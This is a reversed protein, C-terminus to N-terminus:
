YTIIFTFVKFSRFVGKRSQFVLFIEKTEVKRKLTDCWLNMDKGSTCAKPSNFYTEPVSPQLPHKSVAQKSGNKKQFPTKEPKLSKGYLDSPKAEPETWVWGTKHHIGKKKNM